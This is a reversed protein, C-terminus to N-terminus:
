NAHMSYIQPGECIHGKSRSQRRFVLRRCVVIDSHMSGPVCVCNGLSESGGFFFFHVGSAAIQGRNERRMKEAGGVATMETAAAAATTAAAAATPIEKSLCDWKILAVEMTQGRCVGKADLVLAKLSRCATTADAPITAARTRGLNSTPISPPLTRVEVGVRGTPFINTTCPRRIPRSSTLPRM